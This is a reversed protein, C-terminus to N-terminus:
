LFLEDTLQVLPTMQLEEENLLFSYFSLGDQYTVKQKLPIEDVLEDYSVGILFPETDVDGTAFITEVRDDNVGFQIYYMEHDTYVWWTYGYPTQDKREPEGFEQTLTEVTKNVYDFLSGSLITTAQKKTQESQV